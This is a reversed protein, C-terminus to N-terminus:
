PQRDRVLLARRYLDRRSLGTEAALRVAAERVGCEALVERLRRDVEEADPVARECPGIVVVIEGRPADVQRYHDALDDLRGRRIEEHRKTLERAVAAQRAGLIEQM